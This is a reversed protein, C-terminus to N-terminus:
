LAVGFSPEEDSDGDDHVPAQEHERTTERSEVDGDHSFENGKPTKEGFDAAPLPGGQPPTPIMPAQPILKADGTPSTTM